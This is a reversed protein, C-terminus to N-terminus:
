ITRTQASWLDCHRTHTHTTGSWVITMHTLHPIIHPHSLTHAFLCVLSRSWKGIVTATSTHTTHICDGCDNRQAVSGDHFSVYNVLHLDIASLIITLRGRDVSIHLGHKTLSYNYLISCLWDIFRHFLISYIYSKTTEIVFIVLRSSNNIFVHIISTYFNCEQWKWETYRKDRFAACIMQNTTTISISALVRHTLTMYSSICFDCALM